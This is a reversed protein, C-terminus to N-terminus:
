LSPCVWLPDLAALGDVMWGHVLRAEIGDSKIPLYALVGRM